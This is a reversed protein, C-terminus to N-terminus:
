VRVCIAVNQLAHSCHRPPVPSERKPPILHALDNEIGLGGPKIGNLPITQDFDAADLEDIAERGPLSKVAVEIGFAVHGFLSKFNVAQGALKELILGQEGVFHVIEDSKKAVGLKDGM